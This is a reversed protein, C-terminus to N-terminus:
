TVFTFSLSLFTITSLALIVHMDVSWSLVAHLIEFQNTYLQRILQACLTGVTQRWIDWDLFLFLEALVVKLYFMSIRKNKM